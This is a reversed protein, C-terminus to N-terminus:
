RGGGPWRQLLQTPVMYRTTIRHEQILRLTMEAIATVEAAPARPNLTVYRWGAEAAALQWVLIDLDNPLAM